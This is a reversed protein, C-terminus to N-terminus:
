KVCETSVYSFNEDLTIWLQDYGICNNNVYRNYYSNHLNMAKDLYNTTTYSSTYNEMCTGHKIFEHEFLQVKKHLVCDEQSTTNYWTTNIFNTPDYPETYQINVDCCSPYTCNTCEACQDPWVGHIKFKNDHHDYIYTFKYLIPTCVYPSYTYTKKNLWVLYLITLFGTTLTLLGFM